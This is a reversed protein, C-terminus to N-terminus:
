HRSMVMGKDYTAVLTAFGAIKQLAYHEDINTLELTRILSTLREACFQLPRKEIYTIEKLHALFSQPTEAVVHLVRMRTKLYEIFRKLFAIFHEAKRINGPIAEEIMDNSLIPSALMDDEERREDADRLGAVLKEYENQLKAADTKKIRFILRRPWDEHESKLRTELRSSM